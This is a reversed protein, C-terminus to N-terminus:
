GRGKAARWREAVEGTTAFEAGPLSRIRQILRELARLRAGRGTVQPHMTLTFVGGPVHEYMYDWEGQWIELVHEPTNGGDSQGPAFEYYGWDDLVWSVPIEVLDIEEGFVYASRKDGHDGLRCWYPHFDDGMLSSDYRFGFEKLLPITNVSADWSPARYGAPARGTLRKLSEIGLAIEEREREATIMTPTEHCYGHHAIEHGAKMVQEVRAPWSDASEGPIYFTARVGYRDLLGLVREIGVRGGFEGLSANLPTIGREGAGFIRGSFSDFDFTICATARPGTM